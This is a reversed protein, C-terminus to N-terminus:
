RTRQSLACTIAEPFFVNTHTSAAATMLVADYTQHATLSALERKLQEHSTFAVAHLSGSPRRPAHLVEALHSRNSTLLDVDGGADALAKAIEYGTNGTFINGWDRVRDIM